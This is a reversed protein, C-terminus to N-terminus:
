PECLLRGSGRTNAACTARGHVSVTGSGTIEAQVQGDSAFSSHGSGTVSIDAQGVKLADMAAEGSGTIELGLRDATGAARYAGPGAITVDLSRAAINLTEIDGSGSLVIKADQGMAEARISGVGAAVLRRPAPMTINIIATGSSVADPARLVGLAGGKLVFRLSQRIAPTGDISIALKDGQRLRVEDPALLLLSDPAPGTVDLQDLPKAESPEIDTESRACAALVLVVACAAVLSRALHGYKVM